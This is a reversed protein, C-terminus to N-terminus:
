PEVCAATSAYRGGGRVDAPLLALVSPAAHVPTPSCMLRLTVAVLPCSLLVFCELFVVRPPFDCSTSFRVVERCRDVVRAGDVVLLSLLLETDSVRHAVFVLLFGSGFSSM